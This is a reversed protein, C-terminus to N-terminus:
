CQFLGAVSGPQGRQTELAVLCRGQATGLGGVGSLSGCHPREWPWGTQRRIGQAHLDGCAELQGSLGWDTLCRALAPFRLSVAPESGITSGSCDASCPQQLAAPGGRVWGQSSVRFPVLRPDEM